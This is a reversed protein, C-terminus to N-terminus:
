GARNWPELVERAMGRGEDTLRLRGDDATVLGLSLAGALAKEARRRPWQLHEGLADKRNEEAEQGSGEHRYLHVVLARTDVAASERRRGAMQAVLGYRPGALLALVLFGGTALAMSGGISVNLALALWYGILSSAVGIVAAVTLVVWLRDSLLYAAAAPVIAFAIFLIAGVADFAAVATTSTLTLLLYFLVGPMFGLSRALAPDFAMLKLEKFLLTVFALNLVTVVAMVLLSRAIELGGLTVTDLWVFGIEGLLVTHTDVHVDGAYLNLLLVGLSFLAPFVLGIAADGKVRRTSTLAEVLVVTLVGTLGAGILQIPGSAQRFVLWVLVIGLLISHSIADTLMSSRKLVLFTGLTSAAIGVLAGTAIISFTIGSLLEAFM